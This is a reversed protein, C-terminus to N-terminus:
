IWDPYVMNSNDSPSRHYLAIVSVFLRQAHSADEYHLSHLNYGNKTAYYFARGRARQRDILVVRVCSHSVKVSM